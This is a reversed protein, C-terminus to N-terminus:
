DTSYPLGAVELGRQAVSGNRAVLSVPNHALLEALVRLGELSLEEVASVDVRVASRGSVARLLRLRLHPATDAGLRGEVVLDTAADPGELVALAGPASRATAAHESRAVGRGVTHVATATSGEGDPGGRHVTLDDVLSSVATLGRRPGAAGTGDPARWRGRDSVTVRVRGDGALEARLLVPGHEPAGPAYAHRLANDVLADGAQLLATHDLPRLDLPHLWSALAEGMRGRAGAERSDVEVSLSAATAVPRLAVVLSQGERPTGSLGTAVGRALAAADGRGRLGDVLQLLRVTDAQPAVPDVVAHSHLLLLGDDPLAFRAVLSPAPGAGLARGGTARLFRAGAGDVVLPPPHGASWHEGRATRPDLVTVAVTAGRLLPQRDARAHLRVLARAVDGDERLWEEVCARVQGATVVTETGAGPVEGLVIATRGHPVSDFWAGSRASSHTVEHVALDLGPVVTVLGHTAAERTSTARHDGPDGRHAPRPDVGGPLAPLALALVTSAPPETGTGCTPPGGQPSARPIDSVYPVLVLHVASGDARTRWRPLTRSRRVREVEHALRALDERGDSTPHQRTDADHDVLEHFRQNSRGAEYAPGHLLAWGVDARSLAALLSQDPDQDPAQHPDQPEPTPAPDSM